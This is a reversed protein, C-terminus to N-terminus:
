QRILISIFIYIITYISEVCLNKIHTFNKQYIEIESKSINNNSLDLTNLNTLESLGSRLIASGSDKIECEVMYLERINNFCQKNILSVFYQISDNEIFAGSLNLKTVTQAKKTEFLNFLHKLGKCTIRKDTYKYDAISLEILKPSALSSLSQCMFQVGDNGIGSDIYCYLILSFLSLLFPM